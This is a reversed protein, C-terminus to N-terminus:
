LRVTVGCGSTESCDGGGWGSRDECRCNKSRATEVPAHYPGGPHSLYNHVTARIVRWRSFTTTISSSIGIDDKFVNTKRIKM